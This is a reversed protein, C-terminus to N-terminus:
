IRKSEELNKGRFMVKINGTEVRRVIKTNNDWIRRTLREM